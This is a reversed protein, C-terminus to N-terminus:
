VLIEIAYKGFLYSVAAACLPPSHCFIIEEDGVVFHHCIDGGVFIQFVTRREASFDKEACKKEM